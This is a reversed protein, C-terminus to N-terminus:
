KANRMKELVNAIEDLSFGSEVVDELHTRIISEDTVRDDAEGLDCMGICQPIEYKEKGYRKTCVYRWSKWGIRYDEGYSESISIDEPNFDGFNEHAVMKLMDEITEYTRFANMSERLDGRNPRYKIM